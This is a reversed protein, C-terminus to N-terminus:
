KVKEYDDAHYYIEGEINISRIDNETKIQVSYTMGMLSLMYWETEADYKWSFEGGYPATGTGDEKFTTTDGDVTKWEGVIAKKADGGCAVLSLCLMAALLVALLRKM